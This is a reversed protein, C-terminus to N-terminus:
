EKPHALNLFHMLAERMVSDWHPPTPSLPPLIRVPQRPPTNHCLIAELCRAMEEGIRDFRLANDGFARGDRQLDRM